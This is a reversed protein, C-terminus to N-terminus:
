KMLKKESFIKVANVVDGIYRRSNTKFNVTKILDENEDILLCPILRPLKTVM